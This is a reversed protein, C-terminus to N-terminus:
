RTRGLRLDRLAQRVDCQAEAAGAPWAPGGPGEPVPLPAVAEVASALYAEYGARYNAREELPPRGKRVIFLERLDADSGYFANGDISHSKGNVRYHLAGFQWLRPRGAWGGFGARPPAPPLNPKELMHRRGDWRAQWLGDVLGAMHPNGIAYWYGAGTYIYLNGPTEASVVECFRRV